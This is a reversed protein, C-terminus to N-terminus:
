DNYLMLAIFVKPQPLSIWGEQHLVLGVLWLTVQPKFSPAPPGEKARKEKV